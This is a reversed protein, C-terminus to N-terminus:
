KEERWLDSSFGILKMDYHLEDKQTIPKSYIATGWTQRGGVVRREFNVEVLNEKPLAGPEPPRMLMAYIYRKM